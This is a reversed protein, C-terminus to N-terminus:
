FIIPMQMGAARGRRTYFAKIPSMAAKFNAETAETKGQLMEMLKNAAAVPAKWYAWGDSHTDVEEKFAALFQAAKNLVPHGAYRQQALMIDYDNMYNM